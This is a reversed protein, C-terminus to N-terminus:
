KIAEMPPKKPEDQKAVPTNQYESKLEEIFEPKHIEAKLQNLVTAVISDKMTDIKGLVEQHKRKEEEYIAQDIVRYSCLLDGDMVPYNKFTADDREELEEPTGMRVLQCVVTGEIDEDHVFKFIRTDKPQLPPYLKIIIADTLNSTGLPTIWQLLMKGRREKDSDNTVKLEFSTTDNTLVVGHKQPVLILRLDNYKVERKM